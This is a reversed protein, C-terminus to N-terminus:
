ISSAIIGGFSNSAEYDRGTIINGDKVVPEDIYKAGGKEIIGIASKDMTSSWVVAKKGKLAGSNALIVPAICIAAVIKSSNFFRNILGYSIENDLYNSAGSGGAFVLGDYEEEKIEEIDRDVKVEGGFRGIALGKKNSYTDVKVGNQQLAEKTIFYEEDRFDKNAIVFAVKKM